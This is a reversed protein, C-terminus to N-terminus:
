REEFLTVIDDFDFRGNGNFDYRDSNDQVAPDGASEFLTVIDDFDVQGNGNLDEYLGDNDPDTPPGRNGDGEDTPDDVVLTGNASASGATIAYPYQGPTLGDTNVTFAVSRSEDPVLLIETSERVAGNVRVSVTVSTVESGVNM